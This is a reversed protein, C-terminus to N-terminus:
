QGETPRPVESASFYKELRARVFARGRHLLVRQNAPSIELIACVEDAPYGEVDRLTVVVRQRHPLDALAAAVEARIEHTLTTHEPSPLPWPAPLIRWHGTEPHGPGIFRSPDVTPGSDEFAPHNSWPITQGERMARRKATNVLIRFVWTKLASRGEFAHVGRFIELWTDQMVDSASHSGGVFLLAVHFMQGSWADVLLKFANEDRDRLRAVLEEDPPLQRQPRDAEGVLPLGLGSMRHSCTRWLEPQALGGCAVAAPRRSSRNRIITKGPLPHWRGNIGPAPTQGRDVTM